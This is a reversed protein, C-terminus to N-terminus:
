HTHTASYQQKNSIYTSKNLYYNLLANDSEVVVEEENNLQQKLLSIEKELQSIKQDYKNQLESILKRIEFDNM